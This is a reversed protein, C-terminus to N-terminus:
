ANTKLAGERIAEEVWTEHIPIITQGKLQGIFLYLWIGGIGALATLSIWSVHFRAGSFSPETLWYIAFFRIVLIIMAVAGVTSPRDKIARMLLM